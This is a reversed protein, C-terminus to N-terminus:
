GGVAYVIATMTTDPAGGTGVGRVFVAEGSQVHRIPLAGGIAGMSAQEITGVVIYPVNQMCLLKNTANVAVDFFYGNATMTTDASGIGLQWWWVDYPTNGLTASYSGMANTGPTVAVGTTTATTAGITAVKTGCRILDPRSPKGYARIGVRLAQTTGVLDQHAAGISTGAKLYIPFYYNYGFAGTVGLCPSNAYLNAILVSWSTGGAPDILIDTMQRRIATTTNGGAFTISLGYCDEALASLMATNAGKVNASANGPANLGFGADTYTAGYNDVQFNFTNTDPVFLM